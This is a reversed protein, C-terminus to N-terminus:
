NMLRLKLHDQIFLLETTITGTPYLSTRNHHNWNQFDSFNQCNFLIFDSCFYTNETVTECYSSYTVLILKLPLHITSNYTSNKKKVFNESFYVNDASV